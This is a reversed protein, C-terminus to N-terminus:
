AETVEASESKHSYSQYMLARGADTCLLASHTPVSSIAAAALITHYKSEAENRDTYSFVITSASEGTSQIEMVIFLM